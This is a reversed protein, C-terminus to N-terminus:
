KAKRKNNAAIREAKLQAGDARRQRTRSYKEDLRKFVLHRKAKLVHAYSVGERCIIKKGIPPHLKAPADKERVIACVIQPRMGHCPVVKPKSTKHNM